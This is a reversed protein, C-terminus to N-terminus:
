KNHDARLAAKFIEPWSVMNRLGRGLVQQSVPVAQQQYLARRLQEPSVRNLKVPRKV